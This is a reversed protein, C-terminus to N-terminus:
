AGEKPETPNVLSDLATAIKANFVGRAQADREGERVIAVLMDWNDRLIVAMGEDIREASELFAECNEQFNKAEDFLNVVQAHRSTM